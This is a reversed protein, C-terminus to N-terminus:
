LLTTNGWSGGGRMGISALLADGWAVCLGVYLLRGGNGFGSVPRRGGGCCVLGVFLVVLRGGLYGAGFAIRRLAETDAM